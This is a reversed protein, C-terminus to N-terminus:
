CSAARAPRPPREVVALDAAVRQELVGLLRAPDEIGELGGAHRVVFDHLRQLALADLLERLRERVQDLAELGLQLQHRRSRDARVRAAAGPRSRGCTPRPRSRGDWRRSTRRRGSPPASRRAGSARSSSGPCGPWRGGSRRWPGRTAATSRPASPPRRSRRRPAASTGCARSAARPGGSAASGAWRRPSRSARGPGASRRRRRSPPCTARCAARIAHPHQAAVRLHGLARHPLRELVGAPLAEVVQGRDDVDVPEPLRALRHEAPVDVAVHAPDLREAPLRDRDVAVVHVLDLGGVGLGLVGGAPRRRDDRAGLLALAHLRDLVLRALVALRQILGLVAILSSPPSRLSVTETAVGSLAPLGCRNSVEPPSSGDHSSPSSTAVRLAYPSDIAASAFM